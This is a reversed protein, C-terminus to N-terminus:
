KAELPDWAALVAEQEEPHVQAPSLTASERWRLPDWADEEEM